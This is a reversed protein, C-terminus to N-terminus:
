KAEKLKKALYVLNLFEARYGYADEGLAAKTQALVKDYTANGAFESGRLLMAFMAV